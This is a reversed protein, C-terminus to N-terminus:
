TIRRHRKQHWMRKNERIVTMAVTTVITMDEGKDIYGRKDLFSSCTIRIAIKKAQYVRQWM